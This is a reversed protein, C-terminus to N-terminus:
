WRAIRPVPRKLRRPLRLSLGARCRRFRELEASSAARGFILEFRAAERAADWEAASAQIRLDSLPLTTM